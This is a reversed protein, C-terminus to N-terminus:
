FERRVEEVYESLIVLVVLCNVIIVPLALVFGINTM